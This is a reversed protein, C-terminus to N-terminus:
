VKKNVLEKELINSIINIDEYSIRILKINNNNCFINKILDNKKRKIFGDEGGFWEIVEFHQRGDFEICINYEPLYFDFPLSKINICGEFKKQQIYNVNNEILFSEVKKEGYSITYDYSLFLNSNEYDNGYSFIPNLPLFDIKNSIIYDYYEQLSSIGLNKIYEKADNYSLFTKYSTINHGLWDNWSIWEKYYKHPTKPINYPIAGEISMKHWYKQSKLKFTRVMKRADEYNLYVPKTYNEDFLSMWSDLKYSYVPKSPIGIKKNKSYFDLFQNKNKINNERLLIRIDELSIFPSKSNIGLWENWSVWENYCIDPRRPLDSRKTEFMYNEWEKRTKFMFSNAIVVAKKYEIINKVNGLWDNWSVWEDKYTRAPNRPINLPTKFKKWQQSNINLSRAYERAENFNLFNNKDKGM